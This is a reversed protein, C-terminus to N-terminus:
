TQEGKARRYWDAILLAEAQGEYHPTPLYAKPYLQRARRLSADKDTHLLNHFRKWVVSTVLVLQCPLTQVVSLISGFGVGFKFMSAVGQTRGHLEPPMSGVREIICVSEAPTFPGILQRLSKGNVWRLSKDRHFPLPATLMVECMSREPDIHLVAVGGKLGPDIGVLMM